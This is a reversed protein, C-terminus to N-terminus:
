GPRPRAMGPIYDGSGQRADYVPEVGGGDTGHSRSFLRIRAIQAGPETLSTSARECPLIM